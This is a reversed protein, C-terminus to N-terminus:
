KIKLREKPDSCCPMDPAHLNDLENREMDNRIWDLLRSKFSRKGLLGVRDLSAEIARWSTKELDYRVRIRDNKDPGDVQVIGEIEKLKKIGYGIQLPNTGNLRLRHKKIVSM